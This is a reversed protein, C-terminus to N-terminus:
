HLDLSKKTRHYRSKDEDGDKIKSKGYSHDWNGPIFFLPKGFSDLFRLIRNGEKISEEEIKEYKIRGYEDLYEEWDSFPTDTKGWSSVWKNMFKRLAKDSCVDGAFIIADFDEKKFYINPRAGHLDGIILFKTM